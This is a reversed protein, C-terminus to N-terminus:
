STIEIGLAKSLYRGFRPILLIELLYASLISIFYIFFFRIAGSFNFLSTTLAAVSPHLLYVGYSTQGLFLFLKFYLSSERPNKLKSFTLTLVSFSIWIPLLIIAKAHLWTFCSVTAFIALLLTNFHLSIRKKSVYIGWIFQGLNFGVLARGFGFCWTQPDTWDLNDDFRLDSLFILSIGFGIGFFFQRSSDVLGFFVSVLNMYFEVSLSWLPILITSSAPYLFQILLISCLFYLLSHETFAPGQGINGSVKERFLEAVKLFLVFSLALVLMPALRSIRRKVFFFKGRLGHQVANRM